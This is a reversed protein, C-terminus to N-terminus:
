INELLNCRETKVATNDHLEMIAQITYSSGHHPCGPVINLGISLYKQFFRDSNQSPFTLDTLYDM